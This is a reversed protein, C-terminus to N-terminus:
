NNEAKLSGLKTVTNQDVCSGFNIYLIILFTTVLSIVHYALVRFKGSKYKMVVYVM